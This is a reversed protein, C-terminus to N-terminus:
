SLVAAIIALISAGLAAGVAGKLRVGRSRDPTRKSDLRGVM